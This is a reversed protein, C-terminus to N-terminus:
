YALELCPMLKRLDFVHGEGAEADRFADLSSKVYVRFVTREGFIQGRAHLVRNNNFILITGPQLNCSMAGEEAAEILAALASRELHSLRFEDLERARMPLESILNQISM